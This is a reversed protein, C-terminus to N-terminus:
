VKVVNSHTYGFYQLNDMANDKSDYIYDEYKKKNKKFEKIDISLDPKNWRDNDKDKYSIIKRKPDYIVWGTSETFLEKFM